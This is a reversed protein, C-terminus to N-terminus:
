APTKCYQPDWSDCCNCAHVALGSSLICASCAEAQNGYKRLKSEGQPLATVIAVLAMSVAIMSTFGKM